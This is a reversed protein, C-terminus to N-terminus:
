EAQELLREYVMDLTPDQIQLDTVADKHAGRIDMLKLLAGQKLDIVLKNDERKSSCQDWDAITSVLTHVSDAEESEGSLTFIARQRLNASKRLELPSGSALLKGNRFVGITDIRREMLALQHSAMFVMRKKERWEALISWLVSLGETDLGGTPEDLILLQPDGLIAVALGLRQRMGKSYGRVPRGAAHSLGVRSLVKGIAKNPVGRAWAFFRLVQRGHLSESFAVAEPMYGLSTKFQNNIASIEGDVRLVGSQPRVLGLLVRTLTSKGAGNPGILMLIQGAEVKVTASSLAQVSGFRVSINELELTKM